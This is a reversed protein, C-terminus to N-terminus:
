NTRPKCKDKSGRIRRQMGELKENYIRVHGSLVIGNLISNILLKNKINKINKERFVQVERRLKKSFSNPVVVKRSTEVFIDIDSRDIDEGFSYSGFLIILPDSYEDKLHDILGSDYVQGINWLRKEILYKDSRSASYVKVGGFVEERLIREALLENVYRVVSPFPVQAEREIQRKRLRVTPNLFFYDKIKQKVYTM